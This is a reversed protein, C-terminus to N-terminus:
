KMGWKRLLEEEEKRSMRLPIEMQKAEDVLYDLLIRMEEVSYTSSGYFLHVLTYGPLKSKDVRELFWGVGHGEWRRKVTEVDSDKIPMPTYVGVAKIAHRYVEEKDVPPILAKGIDTCLAWCMANADRSRESARKIEVNVPFDKLKYYQRVFDSNVTVTINLSGDPNSTLDRLRGTM